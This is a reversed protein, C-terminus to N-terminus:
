AYPDLPLAMTEADDADIIAQLALLSKRHHESAKPNARPYNWGTFELTHAPKKGTNAAAMLLWQRVAEPVFRKGKLYLRIRAPERALRRATEELGVKSVMHALLALGDHTPLDEIEWRRRPSHPNRRARPIRIRDNHRM